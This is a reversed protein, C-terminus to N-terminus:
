SKEREAILKYKNFEDFIRVQMGFKKNTKFNQTFQNFNSNQLTSSFGNVWGGFLSKENQKSDRQSWIKRSSYEKNFNDEKVYNRVAKLYVEKPV